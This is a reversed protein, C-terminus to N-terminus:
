AKFLAAISVLPVEGSDSAGSGIWAFGDVRRVDISSAAEPTGRTSALPRPYIASPRHTAAAENLMTLTEEASAFRDEPKEMLCRLVLRDLALPVEPRLQSPAVPKQVLRALATQRSGDDCAFPLEACLMEFLVVGFAFLDTAPSLHQGLIQEPAMYSVSGVRENARSAAADGDLTQSLGFDTITVRMDSGKEGVGQGGLTRGDVSQGSVMINDSKLDRHLVGAAHAAGLGALIQRAIEIVLPIEMRSNRLLQGLREGDIFEMTLFHLREDVRGPEEHLGIDHVRCVNPHSIRRALRAEWLLRRIAQPNDSITSLLTKLAVPEGLVADHALYVEGMGGRGVFRDIRYRGAILQGAGFTTMWVRDGDSGAADDDRHHVAANVLELCNSCRDLHAHVSEIEAPMLKGECFAVVEEESLCREVEESLCRGAEDDQYMSM